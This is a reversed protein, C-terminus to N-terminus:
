LKIVLDILDSLSFILYSFPLSQFSCLFRARAAQQRFRPSRLHPAQSEKPNIHSQSLPLFSNSFGELLNRSDISGLFNFKRAIDIQDGPIKLISMSARVYCTCSLMFMAAECSVERVCFVRARREFHLSVNM